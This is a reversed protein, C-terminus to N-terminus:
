ARGVMGELVVEGTRARAGRGYEFTFEQRNSSPGIHGHTGDLFFLVRHCAQKEENGLFVPQLVAEEAFSREMILSALFYFLHGDKIVRIKISM